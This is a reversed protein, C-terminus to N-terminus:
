SLPPFCPLEGGTRRSISRIVVCGAEQVFRNRPFSRMATTVAIIGGAKAVEAKGGAVVFVCVCM